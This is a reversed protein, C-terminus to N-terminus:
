GSSWWPLVLLSIIETKREEKRGKNQSVDEFFAYANNEETGRIKEREEIHGLRKMEGTNIAPAGYKLSYKIIQDVFSIVQLRFGPSLM